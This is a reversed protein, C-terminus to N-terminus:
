MPTERDNFKTGTWRTYTIVGHQKLQTTDINTIISNNGSPENITITHVLANSLYMKDLFFAAERIEASLKNILADYNVEYRKRMFQPSKRMTLGAKLSWATRLRRHKSDYLLYCNECLPAVVTPHTRLFKPIGRKKMEIWPVLFHYRSAIGECGQVSTGKCIPAHEIGFSNAHNWYGVLVDLDCDLESSVFTPEKEVGTMAPAINNDFDSTLRDRNM